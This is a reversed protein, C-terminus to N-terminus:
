SVTEKAAFADQEICRDHDHKAVYGESNKRSIHTQSNTQDQDGDTGATHLSVRRANHTLKIGRAINTSVGTEGQIVQTDVQACKNAWQGGTEQLGGVAEM